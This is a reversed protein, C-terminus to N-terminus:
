KDNTAELRTLHEDVHRTTNQTKFWFVQVAQRGILPQGSCCASIVMGMPRNSLHIPLTLPPVWLVLDGVQFKSTM